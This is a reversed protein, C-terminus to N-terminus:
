NEWTEEHVLWIGRISGSKVFDIFIGKPKKTLGNSLLEFKFSKDEKNIKVVRGYYTTVGNVFEFDDYLSIIAKYNKTKM